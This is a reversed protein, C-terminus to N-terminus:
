IGRVTVLRFGYHEKLANINSKKHGTFQSVEDRPVEILLEGATGSIRVTRGRFVAEGSGTKLAGEVCKLAM